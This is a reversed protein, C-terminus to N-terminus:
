RQLKASAQGKAGHKVQQKVQVYGSKKVKAYGRHTDSAYLIWPWIPMLLAAIQIYDQMRQQIKGQANWLTECLLTGSYVHFAMVARRTGEPNLRSGVGRRRVVQGRERLLTMDADRFSEKGRGGEM